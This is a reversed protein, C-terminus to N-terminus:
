SSWYGSPQPSAEPPQDAWREGNLWTAPHPRYDGDTRRQMAISPLQAQLSALIVDPPAKKVAGAWAKVAQGRGVKRPYLRWFAEFSAGSAAKRHATHTHTPNPDPRTPNPDPIPVPPSEPAIDGGIDPAIRPSVDPRNPPSADERNPHSEPRHDILGCYECDESMKGRKVHWRNHNGLRASEDASPSCYDDWDHFQYGSEGHQEAETWLGSSVLRGALTEADDDWEELVELPVFGRTGSGSCWSQAMVWLGFPAVDRRKDPNSRRVQRAKRHGHLTDDTRGWPM